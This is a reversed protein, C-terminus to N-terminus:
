RSYSAHPSWPEDGDPFGLPRGAPWHERCAELLAAAEECLQDVQVDASHQLLTRLREVGFLRRAPPRAPGHLVPPTGPVEQFTHPAAAPAQSDAVQDVAVQSDPQPNPAPPIVRIGLDAPAPKRKRQRKSM